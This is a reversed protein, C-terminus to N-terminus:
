VLVEDRPLGFLAKLERKPIKGSATVPIEKVFAYYKPRKFKALRGECLSSLEERSLREGSKAVVVAKPVEGWKKDPVGIVAVMKVKPNSRLVEEVESPYIKEGGSNIMDKKRDVVFWYGEKDKYGIDGTYLWGKKLVKKTEENLRWYGSFVNPGGLLIEGMEGPPLDRGKEDVVRAACFLSPKGVSGPKKGSDRIDSLFGTPSTETLGMGQVIPLGRREYEQALSVPLAAGGSYFIRVSTLDTKSFRESELLAQYMAPVGFVISVKEKEILSLTAEVDFKPPLVVRGGALLTPFTFLNIGGMHFMPLLTLTTDEYNIGLGLIDNLANWFMNSNTIVAGKPRGTTGSTYVILLPDEDSEVSPLQNPPSEVWEDRGISLLGEYTLADKIDSEGNVVFVIGEINRSAEKALHEFAQDVFLVKAGSNKIQYELEPPELRYSLPVVILRYMSAAGIATVYRPSNFGLYAFRKGKKARIEKKIGLGLAKIESDLKSYSIREEQTAIAIAEGKMEARRKIWYAPSFVSL